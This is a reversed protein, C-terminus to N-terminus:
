QITRYGSGFAAPEALLTADYAEAAIAAFGRLCLDALLRRARPDDSLGILADRLADCVTAPTAAAAMLPPMPYAPTSAVIRFQWSPEYRRLLALAYSDVGAIEAEGALVAAVARRPTGYPGAVAAFLASGGALVALHARPANYGSHSDTATYAYRHGRCSELTTFPAADAVVFDTRYRAHGDAWAADPIPAALIQRGRPDKAYPWGCMFVCGLDDRAWLEPLPAPYPHDIIDLAVGAREAVAALLTRWAAAAEPAVAYMRANGILGRPSLGPM